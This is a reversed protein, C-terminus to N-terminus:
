LYIFFIICKKIKELNTRSPCSLHTLWYFALWAFVLVQIQIRLVWKFCWAYYCTDPVRTRPTPHIRTSAELESPLWGLRILSSWPWGSVRSGLIHISLSRPFTIGMQLGRCDMCIDAHMRAYISLYLYNVLEPWALVIHVSCCEGDKLM